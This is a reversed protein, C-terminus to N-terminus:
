KKFKKSMKLALPKDVYSESVKGSTWQGKIKRQENNMGKAADFTAGSRRLSQTAYLKSETETLGIDQLRNRMRELFRTYGMRDNLVFGKGDGRVKRFLPGSSIEYKTLFRMLVKYACHDNNEDCELTIPGWKKGTQDQKRKFFQMVVCEKEFSLNGHEICSTIDSFRGHAEIGVIIM